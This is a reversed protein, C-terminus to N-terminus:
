THMTRKVDEGDALKFTARVVEAARGEGFAGAMILERVDSGEAIALKTHVAWAMVNPLVSHFNFLLFVYRGLLLRRYPGEALLPSTDPVSMMGRWNTAGTPAAPPLGVIKRVDSNVGDCALLLDAVFEHRAGDIDISARVLLPDEDDIASISAATRVDIAGPRARAQALLADRLVYWPFFLGDKIAFNPDIAALAAPAIERLARRGNHRLVFAAGRPAFDPLKELLTVTHGLDALRLSVALGSLGAGVVLIRRQPRAACM